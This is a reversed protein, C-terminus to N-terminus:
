EYTILDQFYVLVLYHLNMYCYHDIFIKIYKYLFIYPIPHPTGWVRDTNGKDRMKM